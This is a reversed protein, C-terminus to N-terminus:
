FVVRLIQVLGAIVIAALVALAAIEDAGFKV